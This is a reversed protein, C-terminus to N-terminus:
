QQLDLNIIFIYIYLYLYKLYVNNQQGRNQKLHVTPTCYSRAGLKKQGSFLFESIM